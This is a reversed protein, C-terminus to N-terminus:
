LETDSITLLEIWGRWRPHFDGNEILEAALKADASIKGEMSMVYNIHETIKEIASLIMPDLAKNSGALRLRMKLFEQYSLITHIYDFDDISRYHKCFLCGSPNICDPEPHSNPASDISRPSNPINCSGGVRLNNRSETEKLNKFYQTLEISATQQSGKIYSKLLTPLGHQLEAAVKSLDKGAADSRILKQARAARLVVAPIRKKGARNFIRELSRFGREGELKAEILNTDLIPFLNEVCIGEFVMTRFTLWSELNKRYSKPIRIEVSEQKRNKFGIVKYQEGFSQYKLDQVKLDLTVQLNAGTAGIFLLIEANVRLNVVKRRSAYSTDNNRKKRRSENKSSRFIEASLKQPYSGSGNYLIKEGNRFNIAIPWHGHIANLNLSNVIDELDGLFNDVAQLDVKENTRGDKNSRPLTVRGILEEGSCDFIEALTSVISWAYTHATDETIAGTRVRQWQYQIWHSVATRASEFCMSLDINKSESFSFFTRLILIRTGVTKQRIGASINSQFTKHLEIVLPIRNEIIPGVLNSIEAYDQLKPPLNAGGWFILKRLDYDFAARGSSRITVNLPSDSLNKMLKKM